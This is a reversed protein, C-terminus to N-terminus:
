KYVRGKNEFYSCEKKLRGKLNHLDYVFGDKSEKEKIKCWFEGWMMDSPYCNKCKSCDIQQDM